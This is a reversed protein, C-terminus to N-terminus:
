APQGEVRAPKRGLSESMLSYLQGAESNRWMESGAKDMVDHQAEFRALYRDVYQHFETNGAYLSKVATQLLDSKIELLTRTYARADEPTMPQRRAVPPMLEKRMEANESYLLRYLDVALANLAEVSLPASTATVAAVRVKPPQAVSPPLAPIAAVVPAPIKPMKALQEGIEGSLTTLKKKLDFQWGSLDTSITGMMNKILARVQELRVVLRQTEENAQMM